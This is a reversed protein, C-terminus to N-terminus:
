VLVVSPHSHGYSRIEKQIEETLSEFVASIAENDIALYTQGDGITAGFASSLPVVTDFFHVPFDTFIGNCELQLNEWIEQEQQKPSGNHM